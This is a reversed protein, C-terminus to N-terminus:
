VKCICYCIGDTFSSAPPFRGAFRCIGTFRCYIEVQNRVSKGDGNKRNVKCFSFGKSGLCKNVGARSLDCLLGSPLGDVELMLLVFPLSHGRLLLQVFSATQGWVALNSKFFM